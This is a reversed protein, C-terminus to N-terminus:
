KVCSPGVPLLRAMGGPADLASTTDSIVACASVGPMAMPVLVKRFAGFRTLGDIRAAHEVNRPLAAFFGSMIWSILPITLTLTEGPEPYGNGNGGGVDSITLDPSQYLNPLDFAETVRTTGGGSGANMM